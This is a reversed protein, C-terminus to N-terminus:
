SYATSALTSPGPKGQEVSTGPRHCPPLSTPGAFFPVPIAGCGESGSWTSSEIRKASTVLMTSRSALLHSQSILEMYGIGPSGERTSGGAGFTVSVFDPELAALKAIAKELSAAAKESRAPYLEFSLTPKAGAKWLDTVRM